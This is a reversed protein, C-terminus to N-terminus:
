GNRLAHHADRYKKILDHSIKLSRQQETILETFESGLQEASQLASDYARQAADEGFECSDLIATRDSGTFTAKLDMWARYIQGATTTGEEEMGGMEKIKEVLEDRYGNSERIMGEFTARLDVDLDKTESIAREYGAIRDNNVKVLDNLLEIAIENTQM